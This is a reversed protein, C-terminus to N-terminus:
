KQYRLCLPKSSVTVTPTVTHTVTPMVTPADRKPVGYRNCAADYHPNSDRLMSRLAAVDELEVLQMFRPLDAEVRDLLEDVRGDKSPYAM